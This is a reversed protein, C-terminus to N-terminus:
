LRYVVLVGFCECQTKAGSSVTIQTSSVLMNTDLFGRPGLAFGGLSLMFGQPGLALGLM